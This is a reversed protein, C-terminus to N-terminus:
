SRVAKARIAILGARTNRIRYGRRLHDRIVDVLRTGPPYDAARLPHSLRTPQM